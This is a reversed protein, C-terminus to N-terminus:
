PTDEADTGSSWEAVRALHDYEGYLSVFQPFPRPIYPTAVDRFQDLLRCLGEFQEAVLTALPTKRGVLSPTFGTNASLCLYIAEAVHAGTAGAFAGKEIMAAELVLQPAFGAAIQNESPVRGSKFDIVSTAGANHIEIKDARAILDFRTGDALPLTLKGAQEV